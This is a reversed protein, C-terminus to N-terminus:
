STCIDLIFGTLIILGFTRNSKFLKLCLKSDSDTFHYVQWAAHCLACSLGLATFWSAGAGYAAAAFLMLALSFCISLLLPTRNGFKLATSYVGIIADDEKDQHAYITDYALTWLIAGLYMCIPASSLDEHSALWGVVVGWNFAIGLVIQPYYTVRKMLPYVAIVPLILLGALITRTNFQLLIALGAALQLILFITAQTVTIRGSAVPRNRTREVKADINRDAIDNITCGAGRMIIAGLFFLLAHWGNIPTGSAIHALAQGWWCPILLLWWGIPRDLRM